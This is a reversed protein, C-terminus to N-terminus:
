KPKLLGLVGNLADDLNLKGLLGKLDLLSTLNLAESLAKLLKCAADGGQEVIEDTFTFVFHLFSFFLFFPSILENKIRFLHSFHM